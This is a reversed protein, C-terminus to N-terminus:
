NAGASHFRYCLSLVLSSASGSPDKPRASCLQSSAVRWPFACTLRQLVTKSVSPGTNAATTPFNSSLPPCAPIFLCADKGPHGSPRGGRAAMHCALSVSEQSSPKHRHSMAGPTCREAAPSEAPVERDRHGRCDDSSFPKSLVRRDTLEVVLTQLHFQHALIGQPKLSFSFPSFAAPGWLVAM